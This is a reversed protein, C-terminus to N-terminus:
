NANLYRTPYVLHSLDSEIMILIKLSNQSVDSLTSAHMLSSVALVTRNELEDYM